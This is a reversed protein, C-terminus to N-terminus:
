QLAILKPILSYADWEVKLLNMIPQLQATMTSQSMLQLFLKSAHM